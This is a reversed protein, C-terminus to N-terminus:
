KFVVKGGSSVWQNNKDWFGDCDQQLQLVVKAKKLDIIECTYNEHLASDTDNKYVYGKIIADVMVYNGNPSLSYFLESGVGEYNNSESIKTRSNNNLISLDYWLKMEGNYSGYYLSITKTLPILTDKKAIKHNATEATNENYITCNIFILVFIVVAILQKIM